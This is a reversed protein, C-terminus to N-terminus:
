KAYGNDRFWRVAKQFSEEVPTQPLGLEAVAKSCDFFRFHRSAQVAGLPIHPYHKLLRGEIAEDVYGAALAVWLPMNM